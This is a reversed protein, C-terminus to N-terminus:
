LEFSITDLETKMIDDAINVSTVGPELKFARTPAGDQHKTADIHYNKILGSTEGELRPLEDQKNFHTAFLLTVRPCNVIYRVVDYAHKLGTEAATGTFLEDILVFARDGDRLANVATIINKTRLVEAKFRSIGNGTDDGVNLSSLLTTYPISSYQEAPVVTLTQACLQAVLVSKLFTSKGGTNSGTLLMHHPEEGYGFSISNPVVIDKNVLVNWVNEGHIRPTEGTEYQAFAYRVRDHVTERVLEALVLCAELEGIAVLGGVLTEKHLCMRKHAALVRGTRSYLTPEGTFTKTLLLAALAPGDARPEGDKSANDHLLAHMAPMAALGHAFVPDQYALMDLDHMARVCSAVGNLKTYIFNITDREQKFASWASKVMRYKLFSYYATTAAVAGTQFWTTLKRHKALEQETPLRHEMQATLMSYQADILAQQEPDTLKKYMDYTTKPNFFAVSAALAGQLSVDQTEKGFYKMIKPTLYAATGLAITDWTASLLSKVNNWRSLIELKTSDQNYMDPLFKSKFYLDAILKETLPAKEDWYSLLQDEGAKAQVVIQRVTNRLTEDTALKKILTQRKTLIAQDSEPNSLMAAAAVEGWCTQLRTGFIADFVTKQPTAKGGYYIELDQVLDKLLPDDHIPSAERRAEDAAALTYALRRKKNKTSSKCALAQAVTKITEQKEEPEIGFARLRLSGVTELSLRQKAFSLSCVCISLLLFCSSM